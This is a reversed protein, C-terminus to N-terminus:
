YSEASKAYGKSNAFPKIAYFDNVEKKVLVIENKNIQKVIKGDLDASTRVRVKDGTIKGTFSKFSSQNAYATIFFISFLCIYLYKRM